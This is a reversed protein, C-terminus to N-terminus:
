CTLSNNSTHWPTIKYCTKSLPPLQFAFLRTNAPPGGRASRKSFPLYPLRPLWAARSAARDVALHLGCPSVGPGARILPDAARM